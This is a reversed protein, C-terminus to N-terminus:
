MKGAAALQNKKAALECQTMKLKRLHSLCICLGPALTWLNQRKVEWCEQLGLYLYREGVEGM